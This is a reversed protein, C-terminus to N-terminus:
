RRSFPGVPVQQTICGLGGGGFASLEAPLAVPERGVLKGIEGHLEEEGEAGTRPLLVAGDVFVLNVYPAPMRMTAGPGTVGVLGAGAGRVYPLVPSEVVELRRGAADTATKLM